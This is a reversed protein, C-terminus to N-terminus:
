VKKGKIQKGGDGGRLEVLMELSNKDRSGGLKRFRNIFSDKANYLSASHTQIPKNNHMETKDFNTEFINQRNYSASALKANELRSVITPFTCLCSFIAYILKM